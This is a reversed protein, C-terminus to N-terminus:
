RVFDDCLQIARVHAPRQNNRMRKEDKQKRHEEDEEQAPRKNGIKFLPNDPNRRFLVVAASAATNQQPAPMISEPLNDPNPHEFSLSSHFTGSEHNDMEEDDTPGLNEEVELYEEESSDTYPPVSNVTSETM